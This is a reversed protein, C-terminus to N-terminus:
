AVTGFISSLLVWKLKNLPKIEKVIAKRRPQNLWQVSLVIWCVLLILFLYVFPPFYRVGMKDIASYGSILFGTLLVWRTAPQRMGLLPRKWDSITPLNIIYLGCIIAFIGLMGFHSPHEGLFVIAWILIFIQASGRAVPYVVSLDGHEYARSLTLFYIAELLGSALVIMGARVPVDHIFLFAPLAAVTFIGLMWWVFALKDTAQKMLANSIAHLGAAGLLLLLSRFLM